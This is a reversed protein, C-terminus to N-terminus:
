PHALTPFLLLEMFKLDLWRGFKFGVEKFHAVEVFGFSQHLNYSIKNEGDIGAIMAHLKMERARDILPKLLLKSIGKGQHDIHVYVSHEVTFRYCPWVRFHGFTSFGAIQGDAEAVFVPFGNSIRDNYWSLRMEYTHPQESYVSTTHIIAHNYIELIGALDNKSANRINVTGSLM